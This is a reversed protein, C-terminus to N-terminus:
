FDIDITVTLKGEVTAVQSSKIHSDSSSYECSDFKVMAAQVTTPVQMSLSGVAIVGGLLMALVKKKM